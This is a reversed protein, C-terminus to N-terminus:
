SLESGFLPIQDPDVVAGPPRRPEHEYRRTLEEGLERYASALRRRDAPSVHDVEGDDPHEYLGAVRLVTAATRLTAQRKAQRRDM